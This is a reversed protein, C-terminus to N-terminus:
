KPNLRLLVINNQIAVQNWEDAKTQATRPPYERFPESRSMAVVEMSIAGENLHTSSNHFNAFRISQHVAPRDTPQPLNGILDCETVLVDATALQYGTEESGSLCFEGVHTELIIEGKFGGNALKELLLEITDVREMDLAVEDFPYTMSKNMAWDLLKWTDSLAAQAGALAAESKSVSQQLRHKDDPQANEAHLESLDSSFRQQLSYNWALSAFLFLTLLVGPVRSARPQPVPVETIVALKEDLQKDLKESAHGSVSEMGVLIDKRLEVRQEELLKRLQIDLESPEPIPTRVPIDSDIEQNRTKPRVNRDAARESAHEADTNATTDSRRETVLDLRKLSEFLEAPAVTKPLIGVAGLARAQGLYLDGEKSTYMLIPITATGPNNKIAKVAEFGDMGPMMHDMFIVDPRNHNLFELADQASASTDVALGHKELMRRLVLRASKSDDVVLAHKQESM